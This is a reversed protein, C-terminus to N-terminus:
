KIHLVADREGGRDRKNQRKHQRKINRNLNSRCVASFVRDICCIDVNFFSFLWNLRFSTLLQLDFM